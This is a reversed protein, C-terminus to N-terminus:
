LKVFWLLLKKYFWDVFNNSFYAKIKILFIKIRKIPIYKKKM